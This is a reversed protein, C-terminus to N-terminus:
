LENYEQNIVLGYHKIDKDSWDLTSHELYKVTYENMYVIVGNIDYKIQDKTILDTGMLITIHNKEMNQSYHELNFEPEVRISLVSNNYRDLFQVIKSKAMDTIQLM